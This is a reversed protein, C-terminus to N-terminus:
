HDLIASGDLQVVAGVQDAARGLKAAIEAQTAGEFHYLLAARLALRVEAPAGSWPSDIAVGEEDPSIMQEIPSRNSASPVM